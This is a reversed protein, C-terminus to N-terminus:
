AVYLPVLLWRLSFLGNELYYEIVHVSGPHTINKESDKTAMEV